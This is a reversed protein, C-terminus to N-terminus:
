GGMGAKRILFTPIVAGALTRVLTPIRDGLLKGVVPGRRLAHRPNVHHSVVELQAVVPAAVGPKVTEDGPM